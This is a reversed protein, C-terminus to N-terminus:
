PAQKKLRQLAREAEGRVSINPDKEVLMRLTKEAEPGGLIGLAHAIHIRYDIRLETVRKVLPAVLARDGMAAFVDPIYRTGPGYDPAQEWKALLAPVARKDRMQSLVACIGLTHLGHARPLKEIMMEVPDTGEPCQSLRSGGDAVNAILWNYWERPDEPHKVSDPLQPFFGTVQSDFEPVKDKNVMRRDYTNPNPYVKRFFPEAQDAPMSPLIKGAPPSTLTVRISKMRLPQGPLNFTKEGGWDALYNPTALKDAGLGDVDIRFYYPSSAIVRNESRAEGNVEYDVGLALVKGEPIRDFTIKWVNEGPMLNPLARMNLQRHVTVKLADVGVGAPKASKMEARVLFSYRSTVTPEGKYYQEQGLTIKVKETGAAKPEALSHWTKGMDNSFSLRCLDAADGKTLTAEIDAAIALYPSALRWVAVAPKNAAAPQIRGGSATANASGDFLQSQLAAADDAAVLEQDEQGGVCFASWQKDAPRKKWYDMRETMQIYGDNEWRRTLTEGLRLSTRLSHEMPPLLAKYEVGTMVPCRRPGVREHVPDWYYSRGQPNFSHMRWVGDADPYRLASVSHGSSPEQYGLYGAARWLHTLTRAVGGCEHVGYVLLLKDGRRIEVQDTNYDGKCRVWKGNPSGEFIRGGSTSMLTLMWKWLARAKADTPEPTQDVGEIRFIDATATELTYCDPWRSNRIRLDVMAEDAYVTTDYISEPPFAPGDDALACAMPMAAVVLTALLTCTRKLNM